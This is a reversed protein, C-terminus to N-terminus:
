AGTAQAPIDKRSAFSEVRGERGAGAFGSSPGPAILKSGSAFLVGVARDTLAARQLALCAFREVACRNVAGPPLDREEAGGAMGGQAM